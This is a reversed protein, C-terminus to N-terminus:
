SVTHAQDKATTMNRLGHLAHGFPNQLVSSSLFCDQWFLPSWVRHSLGFCCLYGPLHLLWPVVMRHLSGQGCVCVLLLCVRFTVFMSDGCSFILYWLSMPGCFGTREEKISEWVEAWSKILYPFNLPASTITCPAHYSMACGGGGWVQGPGAWSLRRLPLCNGLYQPIVKKYVM